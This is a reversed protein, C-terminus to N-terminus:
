GHRHETDLYKRDSQPVTDEENDTNFNHSGM